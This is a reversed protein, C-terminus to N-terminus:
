LLGEGHPVDDRVWVLKLRLTSLADRVPFRLLGVVRRACVLWAREQPSSHDRPDDVLDIARARGNPRVELTFDIGSAVHRRDRARAVACRHLRGSLPTLLPVIEAATLPGSTVGRLEIRGGPHPPFAQMDGPQALAASAFLVSPILAGMLLWLAINVARRIM